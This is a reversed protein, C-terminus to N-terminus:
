SAEDGSVDKGYPLIPTFFNNKGSM